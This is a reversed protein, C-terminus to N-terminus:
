DLKLSFNKWNPWRFLKKLLKKLGNIPVIFILLFDHFDSVIEYKPVKLDSFFYCIDGLFNHFCIYYKYFLKYDKRPSKQGPHHNWIDRASVLQPPPWICRRPWWSPPPTWCPLLIDDNFMPVLQLPPALCLYLIYYVFM